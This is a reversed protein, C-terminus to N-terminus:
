KCRRIKLYKLRERQSTRDRNLSKAYFRFRLLVYFKVIQLTLEREHTSCDLKPLEVAQLFSALDYMSKGTIKRASFFVTFSDELLSVLEALKGSPYLLGGSDFQQTFDSRSDLGASTKTSTLCKACITCGTKQLIKRAVYGSVYYVLRSSSKKTIYNSHDEPPLVKLAAEADDLRGKDVLKDLADIASPSSQGPTVSNHGLLSSIVEPTCNGTKPPRALNYFALANLTTLLQAPTPHDNTGNSQRVIGFLNELKDQSLRSTLLYKFGCQSSLYCVLDLTSQVTVRLGEATSESLFGKKSNPAHSQWENLFDLFQRLIEFDRSGPRLARKSSRSTMIKILKSIKLIFSETVQAPGCSREIERRYFFLGKLVEESFLRLAPGVRMKEFGNPFLHLKSIHPMVKLTVNECDSRWAKRICDSHVRGKPTNFGTDLFRNRLNKVLHPFDSFFHLARSDDAPHPCKCKISTASGRIGFIRWMSRNWSAADCTVGDVFLGAQECLLTAELVIKALVNAKVNSKSSFVGLIQMWKGSFPQFVVVLGHDALEESSNEEGFQGLDVFGELSGACFPVFLHNICCTCFLLKHTM